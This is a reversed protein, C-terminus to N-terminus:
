TTDSEARPLTTRLRVGSFPLGSEVVCDWFSWIEPVFRFEIRWEVPLDDAPAVSVPVVATRSIWQGDAQSWPEFPEAPLRYVFLRSNRM